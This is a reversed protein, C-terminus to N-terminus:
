RLITKIEVEYKSERYLKQKASFGLVL